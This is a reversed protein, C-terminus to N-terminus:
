LANIKRRAYILYYNKIIHLSNGCSEGDHSLFLQNRVSVLTKLSQPVNRASKRVIPKRKMSNTNLRYVSFDTAPLSINM